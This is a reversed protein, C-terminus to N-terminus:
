RTPKMIRIITELYAPNQRYQEWLGRGEAIDTISVALAHNVPTHMQNAYAQHAVAGNLYAADSRGTDGELGDRLSPTKVYSRLMWRVIIAPLNRATWLLRPINNSNLKITTVNLHHLLEAAERLAKIEIDAMRESSLVAEPTVDMLTPVANLVMRYVVDSWRLSEDPATKIDPWVPRLLSQLETTLQHDALLLSEDVVVGRLVQDKGLLNALKETPGIGPTLVLCKPTMGRQMLTFAPGELAWGPLTFIIWDPAPDLYTELHAPAPEKLWIAGKLASALREAPPNQGWIILRM